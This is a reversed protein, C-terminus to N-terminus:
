KKFKKIVITFGIIRYNYNGDLKQTIEEAIEEVKEKSRVSNKLVSIRLAKHNKFALELSHLVGETLGSKGIQFSMEQGLQKMNIRLKQM